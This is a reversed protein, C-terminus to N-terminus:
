EKKFFDYFEAEQKRRRNLSTEDAKLEEHEEQLRRRTRGVSEMTPYGEKRYNRFFDVASIDDINAGLCRLVCIYLLDDNNRSAPLNYMIKYVLKNLEKLKM